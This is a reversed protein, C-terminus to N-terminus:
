FKRPTANQFGKQFIVSSLLSSTKKIYDVTFTFIKAHAFTQAIATGHRSFTPFEPIQNGTFKSMQLSNKVRFYLFVYLFPPFNLLIPPFNQNPEQSFTRKKWVHAISGKQCICPNYSECVAFKPLFLCHILM